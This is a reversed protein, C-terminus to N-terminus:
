KRTLLLCAYNWGQYFAMKQELTMNKCSKNEDLFMNWMEEFGLNLLKEKTM